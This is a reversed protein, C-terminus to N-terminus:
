ANSIKSLYVSDNVSFIRCTFLFHALCTPMPHYSEISYDVQSFCCPHPFCAIQNAGTNFILTGTPSIVVLLAKDEKLINKDKIRSIVLLLVPDTISDPLIISILPIFILPIKDCM